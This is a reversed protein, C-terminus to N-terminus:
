LFQSNTGGDDNVRVRNSWSTGNNDSYRTYIDMDDSEDPYEDTYSLFVRGTPSYVLNAEADVSRNPQAPIYDFSGVNTSTVTTAGRFGNPGLGDPDLNVYINEPGQGGFNDQYTILV